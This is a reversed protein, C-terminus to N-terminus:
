KIYQPEYQMYTIMLDSKTNVLMKELVVCKLSIYLSIKSSHM